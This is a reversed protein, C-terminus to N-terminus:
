IGGLEHAQAAPLPAPLFGERVLADNHRLGSAVLRVHNENPRIEDLELQEVRLPSNPQQAVAATSTTV